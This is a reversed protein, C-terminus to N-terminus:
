LGILNGSHIHAVAESINLLNIHKLVEEVAECNNIIANSDCHCRLCRCQNQDHM